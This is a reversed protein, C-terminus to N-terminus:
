MSAALCLIGIVGGVLLGAVNGMGMGLHLLAWGGATPALFAGLGMAADELSPAAFLIYVVLGAGVVALIIM